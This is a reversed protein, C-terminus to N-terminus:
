RFWGPHRQRDVEIVQSNFETVDGPTLMLAEPNVIFPRLVVEGNDKKAGYINILFHLRQDESTRSQWERFTMTQKIYNTLLPALETEETQTIGVNNSMKKLIQGLKAVCVDLSLLTSIKTKNFDDQSISIMWIKDKHYDTIYIFHSTFPTSHNFEGLNWGYQRVTNSSLEKDTISM